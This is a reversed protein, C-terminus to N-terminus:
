WKEVNFTGADVVEKNDGITVTRKVVEVSSPCTPCDSYTFITYTGERLWSFVFLGTPDTDIDDDFYDNDGYVIYVKQEPTFYELGNPQGTNDDYEVTYVRGRIEAKGGVGEEKKCGALLAACAGLIVLSAKM